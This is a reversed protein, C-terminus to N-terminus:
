AVGHERAFSALRDSVAEEGADLEYCNMLQMPPAYVHLTILDSSRSPNSVQHIDDDFSACVQGTELLQASTPKARGGATLEFGEEVGVGEIVRFACASGTHDHIVSHQGPAWCVVLLEFLGSAAVRNRAYGTEEFRVFKGLDGRDVELGSLLEHLEELSPPGAYSRLREVLGELKPCSAPESLPVTEELRMGWAARNGVM